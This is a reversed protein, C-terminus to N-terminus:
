KGDKYKIYILTGVCVLWVLPGCILVFLCKRLTSSNEECESRGDFTFFGFICWFLFLFIPLDNVM